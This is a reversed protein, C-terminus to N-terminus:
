STNVGELYAYVSNQGKSSPSKSWIHSGDEGKFKAIFISNSGSAHLTEGSVDLSGSFNGTIYFDGKADVTIAHGYATDHLPNQGGFRHSWFHNADDGDFKAVFVDYAGSNIVSKSVTM